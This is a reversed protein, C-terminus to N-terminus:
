HVPFVGVKKQLSIMQDFFTPMDLYSGQPIMELLTSNLVYIGASVLCSASPKEEVRSVVYGDVHVVGFPIQYDYQRVCMCADFKQKQHHELLRAFSVQTLLDGNMVIVPLSNIPKFLSLSGGTGMRESERIYEISVGFSSGDGFHKEIIESRYNVSFFFKRFGQDKFNNLIIELIPKDGVKLMPKPCKETLEGLRTGLGGVMLIVANDREVIESFVQDFTVIKQVRSAEDIVPIQRIGQERMIERLVDPDAGDLSVTTPRANMITSVSDDMNIGRLLGRRIDGDTVVGCLVGSVNVVIAIQYGGENIARMAQIVTSNELIFCKENKYMLKNSFGECYYEM